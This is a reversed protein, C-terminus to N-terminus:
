LLLLAYLAGMGAVLTAIRSETRWAVVAAVGGALLQHNAPSLTM